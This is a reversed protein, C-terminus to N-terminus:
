HNPAPSHSMLDITEQEPDLGRSTSQVLGVNEDGSLLEACPSSNGNNLSNKPAKLINKESKKIEAKMRMALETEMKRTIEDIQEKTLSGTETDLQELSSSLSGDTVQPSRFLDTIFFTINIPIVECSYHNTLFRIIKEFSLKFMQKQITIAM